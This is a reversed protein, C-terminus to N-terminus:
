FRTGYVQVVVDIPKLADAAMLQTVAGPDLLFHV